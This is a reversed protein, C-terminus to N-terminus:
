TWVYESYIMVQEWPMFGIQHATQTLSAAGEKTTIMDNVTDTIRDKRAKTSCSVM